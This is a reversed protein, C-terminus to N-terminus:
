KGRVVGADIESTLIILAQVKDERRDERVSNVTHGWSSRTMKGVCQGVFLWGIM